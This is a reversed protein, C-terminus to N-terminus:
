SLILGSLALLSTLLLTVLSVPLLARFSGTLVGPVVTKVTHSNIGM